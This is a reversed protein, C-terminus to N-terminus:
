AIAEEPMADLDASEGGAEDEEMTEDDDLAELEETEEPLRAAAERVDLKGTVVDAILRTRYDRFLDIESVAKAVAADQGATRQAIEKLILEQEELPPLLVPFARLTSSNTSALNTTQKATLQFYARGHQSLLLGVLFEPILIGPRCRVAFVHNQHLCEPIEGHWVCGRGLKDIDGGETMLVDGLQLTSRAAESLPVDIYKIQELSIRGNQVNAVRLYPYSVTPLGIYAKGLTLGAQVIAADKLRTIKWHEPVEGLWKVGSPKLRVNPDLGRTVARQIIAQKQENLLAILKKKARIYRQIRRDAYDLFRVISSQEPLSPVVVPIRKMGAVSLDWQGIRVGDSARAFFGVYPKSRLLEQGFRRDEIRFDFVYYAPSVVGDTPAVGLSGQWAKMKNIVLNGARVVKYNALDDPIFNHNEGASM